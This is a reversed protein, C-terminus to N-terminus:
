PPRTASAGPAPRGGRPPTPRPVRAAGREIHHEVDREVVVELRAEPRHQGVVIGLADGPQQWTVVHQEAQGVRARVDGLEAVGAERGVKQAVPHALSPGHRELPGDVLQGPLRGGDVAQFVPPRYLHALRGVQAHEVGLGHGGPGQAANAVEGGIALAEGCVLRHPHRVREHVPRRDPDVACRGGLAQGSARPRAAPNLQGLPGGSGARRCPADAKRLICMCTRSLTSTRRMQPPIHRSVRFFPLRQASWQAYM